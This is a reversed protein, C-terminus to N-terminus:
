TGGLPQAAQWTAQSVEVLQVVAATSGATPDAAQCKISDQDYGKVVPILPDGYKEAIDLLSYADHSGDGLVPAGVKFQGTAFGTVAFAALPTAATFGVVAYYRSSDLKRGETATLAVISSWDGQAVSSPDVTVQMGVIDGSDAKVAAASAFAANIGPLMSYRLLFVVNANDAATGTGRVFFSNGSHLRQSRSGPSLLQARATGPTTQIVGVQAEFGSQRDIWDQGVISLLMPSDDDVAWIEEMVCTANDPFSPVLLSGDNATVLDDNGSAFDDATGGGTLGQKFTNVIQLAGAM